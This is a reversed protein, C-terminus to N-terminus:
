RYALVSSQDDETFAAAYGYDPTPFDLSNAYCGDVTGDLSWTLGGDTTHLFWAEFNEMDGGAAWAEKPGVFRIDMLSYQPGVWHATRNWHSGGDSTCYIRSGPWGGVHPITDTFFAAHGVLNRAAILRVWLAALTNMLVTLVQANFSLDPILLSFSLM